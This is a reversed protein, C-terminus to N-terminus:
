ACLPHLRGIGAKGGCREATAAIACFAQIAVGIPKIFIALRSFWTGNIIGNDNM